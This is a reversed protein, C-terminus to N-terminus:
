KIIRITPVNYNDIGILQWRKNNRVDTTGGSPGGAGRFFSMNDTREPNQWLNSQNIPLFYDDIAAASIYDTCYSDIYTDTAVILFSYYCVLAILRSTM